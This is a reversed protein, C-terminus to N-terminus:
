WLVPSYSRKATTLSPCSSCPCSFTFHCSARSPASAMSSSILLAFLPDTASFLPSFLLSKGQPVHTAPECPLHAIGRNQVFLRLSMLAVVYLLSSPFLLDRDGDQKYPLSDPLSYLIKVKVLNEEAAFKSDVSAPISHLLLSM